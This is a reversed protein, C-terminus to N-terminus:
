AFAQHLIPILVFSCLYPIRFYKYDIDNFKFEETETSLETYQVIGLARFDNVMKIGDITFISVIKIPINVQELKLLCFNDKEKSTVDFADFMGRTEGSSLQQEETLRKYIQQM